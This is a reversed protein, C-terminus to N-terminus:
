LPGESEAVTEGFGTASLAVAVAMKAALDGLECGKAHGDAAAAAGTVTAGVVAVVFPPRDYSALVSVYVIMHFVSFDHAPVHRVSITLSASPVSRV